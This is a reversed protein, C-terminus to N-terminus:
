RYKQLNAEHEAMTKSYVAYGDTKHFFFLSGDKVPNAVALISELGPNCIPSPPLGDILYTNYPSIFNKYDSLKIADWSGKGYQITPDAELRMGIDLRSLYVGAIKARDDDFKAEREVISAIIIAQNDVKKEETQKKFNTTMLDRIDEPKADLPIKYTDPFLYGEDSSAVKTFEGAKIIKRDALLADIQTVRWGEPITVLFEKSKGEVLMTVIQPLTMDSEIDYVGTQLLSHKSYVYWSFLLSSSIVKKQKLNEGIARTSDGTIIEISATKGAHRFYVTWVPYIIVVLLFLGLVLGIIKKM